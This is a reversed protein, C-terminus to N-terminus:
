KLIRVPKVKKNESTNVELLYMGRNLDFVEISYKGQFVGQKIVQGSINYLKYAKLPESPNLKIFDGVPNRELGLKLERFSETNLGDDLTITKLDMDVILNYTGSDGIFKFNSDDDLSDVLLPDIVYALNQFHTYNLGSGWNTLTTFFRFNADGSADLNVEGSIINDNKCEIIGPNDWSWGNDAIAAGVLYLKDYDCEDSSFTSELTITKLNMDLTINYVGSEGIFKFNSDDDDNKELLPDITYGLNEFYPYNLGSGWDTPTTFFRFNSGGSADLNVEGSIINDGICEIITPNGWDWGNNAIAAGVLYLESFDCDVLSFTTSVVDNEYVAEFVYDGLMDGESLSITWMWYSGYYNDNLTEDWNYIITGDPATVSLNMVSGVYQDRLYTALFITENYSFVSAKNTIETNPCGPFQPAADHTLVANLNPNTYPKQTEWWSNANITNCDGAYPDILTGNGDYVEFHLHPGTSYGSSGIVGLYEGQAVTDGVAKETLSGSKMHGYWAISGDAHMVYVANWGGNSFDCNRDYNGDRKDIIQGAAAAVIEAQNDDMMKYSFPWTYIDIGQHNYGSETDYTRSGCNYDEISNPANEDHDFYNSISWIDNYNFGDAQKVPWKLTVTSRNSSPILQGSARLAEISTEIDTKIQLYEDPSYCNIKEANFTVQGGEINSLPAKQAFCFSFGLLLILIKM